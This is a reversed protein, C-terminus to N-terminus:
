TLLSIIEKANSNSIKTDPTLIDTKVDRSEDGNGNGNSNSNSNSNSDNNGLNGSFTKTSTANAIFHVSDSDSDGDSDIDVLNVIVVGHNTDRIRKLPNVHKSNRMNVNNNNSSTSSSTSSNSSSKTRSLPDNVPIETCMLDKDNDGYVEVDKNDDELEGQSATCWIDDRARRM